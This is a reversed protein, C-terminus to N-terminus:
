STGFHILEKSWNTPSACDLAVHFFSWGARPLNLARLVDAFAVAFVVGFYLRLLLFAVGGGVVEEEVVVAEEGVVVM